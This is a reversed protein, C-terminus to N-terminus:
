ALERAERAPHVYMLEAWYRHKGDNGAGAVANVLAEPGLCAPDFAVAVMGEQLFVQAAIVGELNLLANQVRTACRECGMGGVALYAAQASAIASQDVPKDLPGVHCNEHESM